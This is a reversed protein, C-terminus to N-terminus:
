RPGADHAYARLTGTVHSKQPATWAASWGGSVQVVATSFPRVLYKQAVQERSFRRAM